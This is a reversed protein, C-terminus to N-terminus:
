MRPMSERYGVGPFTRCPISMMVPGVQIWGITADRKFTTAVRRFVRCSPSLRIGHYAMLSQLRRRNAPKRQHYNSSFHQIISPVIKSQVPIQIYWGRRDSRLFSSISITGQFVAGGSGDFYSAFQQVPTPLFATAAFDYDNEPGGPCEARHNIFTGSSGGAEGHM